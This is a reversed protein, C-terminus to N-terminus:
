FVKAIAKQLPLGGDVATEFGAILVNKLEETCEEDHGQNRRAVCLADGKRLRGSKNGGQSSASACGSRSARGKTVV